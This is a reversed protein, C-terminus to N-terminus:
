IADDFCHQQYLDNYDLKHGYENFLSIIRPAITRAPYLEGRSWKGPLSRDIELYLVIEKWPVVRKLLYNQFVTDNKM